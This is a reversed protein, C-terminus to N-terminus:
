GHPRELLFGDSLPRTAPVSGGDIGVAVLLRGTTRDDLFSQTEIQYEVGDTGLVTEAVGEGAYEERLSDYSRTRLRSLHQALLRRPEEKSAAM